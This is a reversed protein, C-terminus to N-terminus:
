DFVLFFVLFFYSGFCLIGDDMVVYVVVLEVDYDYFGIFGVYM